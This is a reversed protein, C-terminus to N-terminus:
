FGDSGTTIMLDEYGIAQHIKKMFIPLQQNKTWNESDESIL